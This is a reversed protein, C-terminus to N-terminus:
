KSVILIQCDGGEKLIVRAHYEFGRNICDILMKPNTVFVAGVIKHDSTIAVLPGSATQLEIDLVDGVKIQKLVDPDPSTINTKISIKECEIIPIGGGGGFNAGGGSSGSGSM